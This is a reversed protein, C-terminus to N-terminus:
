DVFCVNKFALVFNRVRFTALIMRIVKEKISESLIDSLKPITNFKNMNVALNYDFTSIWVCFVLQYQIQFNTRAQLIDFIANLGNLNVFADRYEDVRLM